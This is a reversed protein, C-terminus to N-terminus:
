NPQCRPVKRRQYVFYKGSSNSPWFIMMKSARGQRSDIFTYIYMVCIGLSYIKPPPPLRATSPPHCFDDISLVKNDIITVNWPWEDGWQSPTGNRGFDLITRAPHHAFFSACTM